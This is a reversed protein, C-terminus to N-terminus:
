LVAVAGKSFSLITEKEKTTIFILTTTGAQDLNETFNIQQMAKPDADLEQEKSFDIAIMNYCSDFNAYELLCGTTANDGQGTAIKQNNKHTRM